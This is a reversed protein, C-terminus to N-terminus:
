YEFRVLLLTLTRKSFTSLPLCRNKPSTFITSVLCKLSLSFLPLCKGQAEWVPYSNTNKQPLMQFIYIQPFPGTDAKKSSYLVGRALFMVIFRYCFGGRAIWSPPWWGANLVRWYCDPIPKGGCQSFQSPPFLLWRLGENAMSMWWDTNLVNALPLKIVLSRPQCSAPRVSLVFENIMPSRRLQAATSGRARIRHNNSCSDGM